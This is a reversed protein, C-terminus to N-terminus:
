CIVIIVLFLLLQQLPQILLMFLRLFSPILNLQLFLFTNIFLLRLEKLNLLLVILKNLKFSLLHLFFLLLKM